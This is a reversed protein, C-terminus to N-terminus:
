CAGDRGLVKWITKLIIKFDVIVNWCDIYETDLDVVTQFDTVTSRGSVQWMGTIGPKISMRRWHNPEYQLVEDTTPPRTGVLSMDGKLVNFFQPLEDISTKRIFKGVSTVRPDNHMKFMIGGQIENQELLKIKQEEADNCMSRFKYMNFSRGNLGVRKQKFIIPGKSNIKIAIATVLMIPVSLIIGVMSGIIDIGRKLVRSSTNLSVTHYTIVPYTGVSSVYSQAIQNKYMNMIVRATVGMEVCLNIYPQIDFENSDSHMFYVQDITNTHLIEELEEIRGLYDVGDKDQSVYGVIDINLNCKGVYREFDVFNNKEGVLITRYMVMKKKKVLLRVCVTSILMYIYVLLLYMLYFQYLHTTRAVYFFMTSTIATAILFSKTIYRLIRDKYFFTTVNYMRSEKNSLIYITLFIACIANCTGLNNAIISKESLLFSTLLALIGFFCDSIIHLMNTSAGRNFKGVGLCRGEQYKDMILTRGYKDIKFM